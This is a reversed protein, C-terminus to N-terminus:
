KSSARSEARGLAEIAAALDPDRGDLYDTAHWRVPITPQTGRGEILGGKPGYVRMSCLTVSTGSAPLEAIVRPAGTGGNTARGVVLVPDRNELVARLFNDTVSFCEEDILIALPGDFRQDAPVPDHEYGHPTTWAGGAKASLMFYVFRRPLLHKALHAGLIDTGGENGRLDLILSRWAGGAGSRLSAFASDILSKQTTVFAERSEPAAALWGRWDDVTFTPVVVRAIGPAAAIPRWAPDANLPVGHLNKVEPGVTEAKVSRTSVGGRPVFTVTVAPMDTAHLRLLAKRRRAGGTSAITARESQELRKGIPMGDVDVVRAGAPPELSGGSDIVVFGEDTEAVRFPWRRAPEAVGPTEVAAHGDKLAAVLELVIEHFAAPTAFDPLALKAGSVLSDVEVGFNQEKDELYAWKEHIASRLVDLDGSM